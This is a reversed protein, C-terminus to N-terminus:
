NILKEEATTDLQGSSLDNYPPILASIPALLPNGFM